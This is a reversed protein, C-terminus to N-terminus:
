ADVTVGALVEWCAGQKSSCMWPQSSSKLFCISQSCFTGPSCDLMPQGERGWEKKGRSPRACTDLVESEMNLLRTCSVRRDKGKKSVGSGLTPDVEHEPSHFLRFWPRAQSQVCPWECPSLALLLIFWLCRSRGQVERSCPLLASNRCLGPAQHPSGPRPGM